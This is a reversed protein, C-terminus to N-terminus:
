PRLWGPALGRPPAGAISLNPPLTGSRMAARQRSWLVAGARLQEPSRPLLRRRVRVAQRLSVLVVALRSATAACVPVRCGGNDDFAEASPRHTVAALKILGAVEVALPKVPPGGVDSGTPHQGLAPAPPRARRVARGSKNGAPASPCSSSVGLCAGRRARVPCWGARTKHQGELAPGAPCLTRGSM